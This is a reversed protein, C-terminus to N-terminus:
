QKGRSSWPHHLGRKEEVCKRHRQLLGGSGRGGLHLQPCNARCNGWCAATDVLARSIRRAALKGVSSRGCSNCRPLETAVRVEGRMERTGSLPRESPGGAGVHWVRVTGDGSVSASLSRKGDGSVAVSRVQNTDGPCAALVLQVGRVDRTRVFGDM